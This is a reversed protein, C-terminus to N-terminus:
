LWNEWDAEAKYVLNIYHEFKMTTNEIIKLADECFYFGDWSVVKKTWGYRAAGWGNFNQFSIIVIWNIKWVRSKIWTRKSNRKHRCNSGGSFDFEEFDDM